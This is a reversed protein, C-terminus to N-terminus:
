GQLLAEKTYKKALEVGPQDFPNVGLLNGMVVTAVEFIYMLQSLYYEDLEPLSITFNARKNTIKERAIKVASYKNMSGHIKNEYVNASSRLDDIDSEFLKLDERLCVKGSKIAKSM